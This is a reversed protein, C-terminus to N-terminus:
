DNKNYLQEPNNDIKVGDSLCCHPSIFKSGGSAALVAQVLDTAMKPKIVYSLAGANFAARVYDPDVHVTLMIVKVESGMKKLEAAVEIGTLGPMSIDLVAIEPQLLMIMELASLGDAATGVVEFESQLIQVVKERMPKVDDAVVLRIKSQKTNSTPM